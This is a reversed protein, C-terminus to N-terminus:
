FCYIGKLTFYAPRSPNLGPIWETIDPDKRWETLAFGLEARFKSNIEYGAGLRWGFKVGTDGQAALLGPPPQVRDVNWVHFSPGTALFLNPAMKFPKYVIDFGLYIGMLDYLEPQEETPKGSLIKAVGVNPRMQVNSRPIDFQLGFEGAFAGLGGWTKQTMDHSHGQAFNFGFALYKNHPIGEQAALGVSSAFLAATFIRM